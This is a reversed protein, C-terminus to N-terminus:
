YVTKTTLNWSASSTMWFLIQLHLSSLNLFCKPLCIHYELANDSPAPIFTHVSYFSLSSLLRELLRQQWDFHWTHASLVITRRQPCRLPTDIRKFITWTHKCIRGLMEYIHLKLYFLRLQKAWHKWQNGMSKLKQPLLRCGHGVAAERHAHRLLPLLSSCIGSKIETDITTGM